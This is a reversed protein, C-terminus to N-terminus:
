PSSGAKSAEGRGRGGLYETRIADYAREAKEAHQSGDLELILSREFCVFDAIYFGLPQQRKWKVGTQGTHLAKWVLCEEPTSERRLRRARGTGEACSFRGEGDVGCQLGSGRGGRRGM